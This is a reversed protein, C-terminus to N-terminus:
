SPYFQLLLSEAFDKGFHYSKAVAFGYRITLTHQYLTTYIIRIYAVEIVVNIGM